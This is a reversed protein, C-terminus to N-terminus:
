IKFLFKVSYIQRYFGIINYSGPIFDYLCIGFHKRKKIGGFLFLRIKRFGANRYGCRFYGIVDADDGAAM